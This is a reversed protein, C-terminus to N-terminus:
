AFFGLMVLLIRLGSMINRDIYMYIYREELTLDEQKYNYSNM